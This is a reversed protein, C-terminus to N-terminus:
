NKFGQLWVADLGSDRGVQAVLQACRLVRVLHEADERTEVSQEHARVDAPCNALVLGLENLAHLVIDFSQM